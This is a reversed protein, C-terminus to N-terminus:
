RHEVDTIVGGHHLRHRVDVGRALTQEVFCGRKAADVLALVAATDDRSEVHIELEFGVPETVYPGRGQLHGLFVTRGEVTLGDLQVRLRRAFARMQTMFCGVLAATFYHLPTAATGDGGHFGGEDTAIDFTGGTTPQDSVVRVENRMKGVAVGRFSFVVDFTGTEPQADFSTM